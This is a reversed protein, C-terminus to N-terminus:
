AFTVRPGFHLSSPDLDVPSEAGDVQIRVFYEGSTVGTTTVEITAADATPTPGAFAFAAPGIAVNQNLLLSIRQGARVPPDVDISVVDAALSVSTISPRLVFPAVNSEFGRHPDAATDFLIQQVVQVGQVGARLATAPFPPATLTVSLQLDSVSLPTVLQGALRVQTVDGQLRQGRIVLTDGALIPMAAGGASQVSEILPQRFPLVRLNRQRVPLASLPTQDDEILVVSADYAVSLVYPRQFFVSWLNSLDQLSLSAPTVKVLDIQEVLNSDALFGLTTNGLAEMLMERTLMPRAHLTRISIGLLRQPELQAENGTFSLLYHLDLAAVPRVELSGDARRTPLDNNRLAANPTANYLFLNAAPGGPGNTQDEPRVMTVTGGPLDSDLAAQLLQRLTETVTAVALYNSM